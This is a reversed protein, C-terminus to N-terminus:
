NKGVILDAWSKRTAVVVITFQSRLVSRFARDSSARLNSFGRPVTWTTERRATTFHTTSGLLVVFQSTASHSGSMAFRVLEEAGVVAHQMRQQWEDREVKRQFAEARLADSEQDYKAWREVLRREHDDVPRKM